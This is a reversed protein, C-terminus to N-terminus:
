KLDYALAMLCCSSVKSISFCLVQRFEFNVSVSFKVLQSELTTCGAGKLFPFSSCGVVKASTQPLSWAIWIGSSRKQMMGLLTAILVKKSCFHM